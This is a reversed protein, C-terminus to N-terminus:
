DLRVGRFTITTPISNKIYRPRSSASTYITGSNSHVKDGYANSFLAYTDSIYICCWSKALTSSLVNSDCHYYYVYGTAAVSPNGLTLNPAATVTSLNCPIFLQTGQLLNLRTLHVFFAKYDWNSDTQNSWLALEIVDGVVVDYLFMVVTYYYNAAVSASGTMVSAGNKKLRYYITGATIFQGAGFIGATWIKKYPQINFTPLDSNQVAYSIQPTGPESTPLTEPTELLTEQPTQLTINLTKKSGYLPNLKTM